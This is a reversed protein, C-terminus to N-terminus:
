QGPCGLICLRFNRMGGWTIRNRKGGTVLGYFHLIERRIGANQYLPRVLTDKFEGKVLVPLILHNMPKGKDIM